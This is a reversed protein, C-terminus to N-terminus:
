KKLAPERGTVYDFEPKKTWKGGGDRSVTITHVRGVLPMPDFEHGSYWRIISAANQYRNGPDMLRDPDISGAMFTVLADGHRNYITTGNYNAIIKHAKHQLGEVLREAVHDPRIVGGFMRELLVVCTGDMLVASHPNLERLTFMPNDIHNAAKAKLRKLEPLTPDWEFYKILFDVQNIFDRVRGARAAAEWEERFTAERKAALRDKLERLREFM